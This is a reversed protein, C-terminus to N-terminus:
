SNFYFDTLKKRCRILGKARLIKLKAVVSEDSKVRLCKRMQSLTPPNWNDKNSIFLYLKLQKDTISKM